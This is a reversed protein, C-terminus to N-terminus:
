WLANARTVTDAFQDIGSHAALTMSPYIGQDAQATVVIYPMMALTDGGGLAPGTGVVHSGTLWFPVAVITDGALNGTIGAATVQRLGATKLNVTQRLTTPYTIGAATKYGFLDLTLVFTAAAGIYPRLVNINLYLLNGALRVYRESTNIGAFPNGAFARRFYSYMPIDPPAGAMDAVTRGGTCNIVNLRACSHPQYSMASAAITVTFPTSAGITASNSLTYAGLQNGPVGPIGTITTGAPLTGGTISMGVLPWADAPAVATATLTTGSVTGTLTFATNPFAALDTDVSFAGAGDVYVDLVTFAKMMGLTTNVGVTAGAGNNVIVGPNACLAIKAGPVAWPMPCGAETAGGPAHWTGYVTSGGIPVSLTGNTFTIQSTPIVNSEQMADATAGIYSNILTVRDPTGYVPGFTLTGTIFSDRIVTDKAGIGIGSMM